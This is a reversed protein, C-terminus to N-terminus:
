MIAPWAKITNVRDRPSLFGWAYHFQLAPSMTEHTVSLLLTDKMPGKLKHLNPNHPKSLTTDQCLSLLYLDDDNFEDLTAGDLVTTPLRASCILECLDNPAAYRYLSPIAFLIKESITKETLIQSNSNIM